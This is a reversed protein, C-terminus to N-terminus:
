LLRRVARIRCPNGTESGNKMIRTATGISGRARYWLFSRRVKLQKAMIGRRDLDQMLSRISGLELYRKFITRVTEVEEPVIALKKNISAYGLPVPGGVWIGGKRKSAAIKERVREGIV